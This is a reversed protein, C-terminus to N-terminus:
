PAYQMSNGLGLIMESGEILTSIGCAFTFLIGFAIFIALAM